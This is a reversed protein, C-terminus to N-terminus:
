EAQPPNRGTRWCGRGLSSENGSLCRPAQMRPSVGRAQVPLRPYPREVFLRTRGFRWLGIRVILSQAFLLFDGFIDRVHGFILAVDDRVQKGVVLLHKRVRGIAAVRVCQQRFPDDNKRGPRALHARVVLDRECDRVVDPGYQLLVFLLKRIRRRRPTLCFYMRPSTMPHFSSSSGSRAFNPRLALHPCAAACLLIM